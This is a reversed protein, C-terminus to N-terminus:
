HGDYGPPCIDDDWYDPEDEPGDYDQLAEDGKECVIDSLKEIQKDDLQHVIDVDEGLANEAWVHVIEPEPPDGPYGPDGNRMYMVDPTGPTYTAEVVVDVENEGVEVTTEFKIEKGKGM